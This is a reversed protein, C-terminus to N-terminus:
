VQGEPGAQHVQAQEVQVAPSSSRSPLALADIPTSPCAPPSHAPTSHHTGITIISPPPNALDNLRALSRETTLQHQRCQKSVQELQALMTNMDAQLKVLKRTWSEWSKQTLAWRLTTQGQDEQGLSPFNGRAAELNLTRKDIKDMRGTLDCILSDLVSEPQNQDWQGPQRRSQCVNGLNHMVSSIAESGPPVAVQSAHQAGVTAYTPARQPNVPRGTSPRFNPCLDINPQTSNDMHATPQTGNPRRLTPPPKGAAVVSSEKATGDLSWDGGVSHHSSCSYKVLTRTM